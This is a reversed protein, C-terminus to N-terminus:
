LIIREFVKGLGYDMVTTIIVLVLTFVVVAFTLNVTEKRSPWTVKKLEQRAGKLYSVAKQFAKKM